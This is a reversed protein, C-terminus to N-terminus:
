LFLIHSQRLLDLWVLHVQERPATEPHCLRRIHNIHQSSNTLLTQIYIPTYCMGVGAFRVADDITPSFAAFMRYMATLCLTTVYVFLIYIFFKSAVMDMSSLFYTVVAFVTVQSLIVPIDVVARAISVASPRYFAYGKHRAIVVRGSVAKM